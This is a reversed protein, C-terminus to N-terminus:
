TVRIEFKNECISFCGCPFTVRSIPEQANMETTFVEHKM